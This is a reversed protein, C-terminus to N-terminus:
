NCLSRDVYRKRGSASYTYCGGRPGRIYSGSSSSPSSSFSSSRSYSLDDSSRGCFSHDVYTKNGNRNWYYCGGRPGTIYVRSSETSTESRNSSVTSYSRRTDSSRNVDDKEEDNDTSAYVDLAEKDTPFPKPKPTKKKVVIPSAMPSATPAITNNLVSPSPKPIPKSSYSNGSDGCALTLLLFVSLACIASLLNKM